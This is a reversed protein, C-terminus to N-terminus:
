IVRYEEEELVRLRTTLFHLNKEAEKRQKQMEAVKKHLSTGLEM